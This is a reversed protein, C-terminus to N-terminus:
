IYANKLYDVHRLHTSKDGQIRFPTDAVKWTASVGKWQWKELPLYVREYGFPVIITYIIRVKKVIYFM